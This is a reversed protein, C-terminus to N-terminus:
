VTIAPKSLRLTQKVLNTNFAHEKLIVCKSLVLVLFNYWILYEQDEMDTIDSLM